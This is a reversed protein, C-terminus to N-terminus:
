PTGGPLRVLSDREQTNRNSIGQAQRQRECFECPDTHVRGAIEFEWLKEAEWAGGQAVNGKPYLYIRQRHCFKTRTITAGSSFGKDSLRATNAKHHPNVSPGFSDNGTERPTADMHKLEPAVPPSM